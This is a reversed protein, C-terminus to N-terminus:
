AASADATTEIQAVRNVDVMGGAVHRRAHHLALVILDFSSLLPM